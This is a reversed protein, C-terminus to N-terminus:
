INDPIKKPLIEQFKEFCREFIDSTNRSTKRFKNFYNEFNESM